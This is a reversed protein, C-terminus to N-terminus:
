AILDLDPTDGLKSAANQRTLVSHEHTNHYANILEHQIVPQEANSRKLPPKLQRNVKPPEVQQQHNQNPSNNNRYILDHLEPLLNMDLQPLNEMEPSKDLDTFSLSSVPPPDFKEYKLVRAKINM